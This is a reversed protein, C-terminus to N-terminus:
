CANVIRWHEHGGPTVTVVPELQGNVLVLDGERGLMRDPLAAEVVRDGVLTVDTIVLVREQQAGLPPVDDREIIIAGCLGAWLQDAVTHHLHPHYWFTGAPHDKAIDYEYRFTEGDKIELFVNDSNDSPSVQLGHVHLNTSEGL